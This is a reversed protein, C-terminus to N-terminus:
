GGLFRHRKVLFVIDGEYVKGVEKAASPVLYVGVSKEELPGLYFSRVFDLGVAPDVDLFLWDGIDGKGRLVVDVGYDRHNVFTLFRVSSAADLPVDGFHVKDKDLNFGVSGGTMRVDAPYVFTEEVIYFSLGVFVVPLVLLVAVILLIFRDRGMGLGRGTMLEM